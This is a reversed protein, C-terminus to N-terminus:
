AWRRRVSGNSRFTSFFVYKLFSPLIKFIEKYFVTNCLRMKGRKKMYTTGTYPKSYPPYSCLYFEPVNMTYNGFPAKVDRGRQQPKQIIGSCSRDKGCALKAEAKMDWKKDQEPFCTTNPLEQFM